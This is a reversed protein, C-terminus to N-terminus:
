ESTSIMIKDSCSIAGSCSFCIEVKTDEKHSTPFKLGPILTRVIRLQKSSAVLSKVTAVVSISARSIVPFECKALHGRRM